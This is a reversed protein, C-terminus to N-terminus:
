NNGQESASGRSAPHIVPRYTKGSLGTPFEKVVHVGGRLKKHDSLLRDAYESIATPLQSPEKVDLEVDGPDKLIVLVKPVHGGEVDVPVVLADKVCAHMRVIDEVESPCIHHNWYKFIDKARDVVHLVAKEGIFGVDGTRVFGNELAARTAKGDKYYGSFMPGKAWIEGREGVGLPEFTELSHIEVQCMTYSTPQDRNDRDYMDVSIRLCETMGYGVIITKVSPLKFIADRMSSAVGSGSLVVVEVSSTDYKKMV